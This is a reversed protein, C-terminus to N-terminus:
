CVGKISYINTKKEFSILCSLSVLASKRKVIMRLLHCAGMKKFCPAKNDRRNSVLQTVESHHGLKESDRKKMQSISIM